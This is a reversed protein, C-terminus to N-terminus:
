QFANGERVSCRAGNARMDYSTVTGGGPKSYVHEGANGRGYIVEVTCSTFSPDFTAVIHTAGGGESGQGILQSGALRWRPTNGAGGPGREFSSEGGGRALSAMHRRAFLRGASSVYVTHIIRNSFPALNGDPRRSMGTTTWEMVVSRNSFPAANADFGLCAIAGALLISRIM